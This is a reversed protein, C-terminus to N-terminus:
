CVDPDFTSSHRCRTGHRSNKTRSVMMEERYGEQQYLEFLQMTIESDDPNANHQEELFAIQEQPPIVVFYKDVLNDIAEEEGRIERLERLFDLAGGIDGAQYLDNIIVDLYYPEIRKSDIEYARRYAQVAEDKLDGLDAIHNQIFRGKDRTWEFSDVEAGIGQLVPIVRDFIVLASDLWARKKEPDEEANALGEYVDIARSFNRDDDRPYGPHNQLIWNM